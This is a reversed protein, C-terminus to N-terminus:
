EDSTQQETSEESGEAPSPEDEAGQETSDSEDSTANSEAQSPGESEGILGQESIKSLQVALGSILSSLGRVLGTLPSGLTGVFQAQLTERSPLRAIDEVEAVSLARGSLAGGKFQPFRHERRFTALAKAALAADGDPAVFALATPGELTDKLSSVEAQDCALKTLRNKVVRFSTGSEQLRIRLDASQAVTLGRYDVSYIAEAQSIQDAVENIFAAKQERNLNEESWCFARLV